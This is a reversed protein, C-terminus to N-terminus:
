AARLSYLTTRAVKAKEALGISIFVPALFGICGTSQLPGIHRPCRGLKKPRDNM